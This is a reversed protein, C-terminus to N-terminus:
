NDIAWLYQAAYARWPRWSEARAALAAPDDDLGLLRAGRRVGLDSAPFSDPDGLARLAIYAATWDGIGRIELLRQRTEVRDASGDLVVVEDLMARALAHLTERRPRPLGIVALDSDALAELTPFAHTVGGVREPLPTGHAAVLRGTLTRAAALSVQQGLVARVALEGGDVAGPVRLGPNAAVSRRLAPDDALVTTYAVPDADLDFLRRCRHVAAPLDAVSALLLSAHVHGDTPTLGVVAIGSPLRMARRYVGDKVDELGPVARAALWDVM